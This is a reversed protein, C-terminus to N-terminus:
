PEEPELVFPKAGAAKFVREAEQLRQQNGPADDEVAVLLDGHTLAQDYYDALTGEEGRTRMAGIFSGAVAGGILFSPGATLLSVGAATTLGATILGGVLAGAVGGQAAAEATHTGAPEEQEFQRFHREKADESCLVSIQEQSFGAECLREVAAEADKVRHFVAARISKETSQRPTSNTM